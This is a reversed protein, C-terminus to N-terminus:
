PSPTNGTVTQPVAARIQPGPTSGTVTQPVLARIQPGPMNGTVTQPLAARTEPGPTTGTVTQPVAARTQPSPMARRRVTLSGQPGPSVAAPLLAPIDAERKAEMLIVTPGSLLAAPSGARLGTQCLCTLPSKGEKGPSRQKEERRLRTGACSEEAERRNRRM